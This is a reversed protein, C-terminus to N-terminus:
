EVATRIRSLPIANARAQCLLDPKRSGAGDIRGM